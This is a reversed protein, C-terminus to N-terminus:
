YFVIFLKQKRVLSKSIEGSIRVLEKTPIQALQQVLDASSSAKIELKDALLMADDQPTHSIAWSGGVSGSHMIAGSFLGQSMPSLMHYQVSASGSSQGFITVKRPCGGFNQINDQIWRLAM